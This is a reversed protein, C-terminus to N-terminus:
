WSGRQQATPRTNTRGCIKLHKRRKARMMSQNAAALVDVYKM